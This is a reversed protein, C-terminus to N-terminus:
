KTRCKKLKKAFLIITLAIVLISFITIFTLYKSSKNNTKEKTVMAIPTKNKEIPKQIQEVKEETIPENDEKPKEELEIRNTNNYATEGAISCEKEIEEILPCEKISEKIIFDNEDKLYKENTLDEHYGPVYEKTKKYCKYLKDRYKYGKTEIEFPKTLCNEKKITIETICKQDDNCETQVEEEYDSYANNLFGQIIYAFFHMYTFEENKEHHIRIKTNFIDTVEELEIELIDQTVLNIYKDHKEDNLIKTEQNNITDQLIKYDIKENKTNLFELEYIKVGYMPFYKFELYKSHDRPININIKTEEIERYKKADPKLTTYQWETTIYTNEDFYECVNEVESRYIIDKEIEKYWKYAVEKEEAKVIIIPILSILLIMIKLKKKM